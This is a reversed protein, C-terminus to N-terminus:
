KVFQVGLRITPQTGIMWFESVFQTRPIRPHRLILQPEGAAARPGPRFRMFGESSLKWGGLLSAERSVWSLYWERYHTPGRIRWLSGAVVSKVIKATKHPFGPIKVLNVRPGVQIFSGGAITGGSELTFMAGGSKAHAFNLSHNTFFQGKREGAEVFGFGSLTFGKPLAHSHSYWPSVMLGADIGSTQPYVELGYGFTHSGGKRQNQKTESKGSKSPQAKVLPVLPGVGVFAMAISALQAVFHIASKLQEKRRIDGPYFALGLPWFISAPLLRWIEPWVLLDRVMLRVVFVLFMVPVSWLYGLVFKKLADTEISSVDFRHESYSNEPRAAIMVDNGFKQLFNFNVMSTPSGMTLSGLRSKMEEKASFDDSDTEVLRFLADELMRKRNLYEWYSGPTNPLVVKEPKGWKEERDRVWVYETRVKEMSYNPSMQIRAATDLANGRRVEKLWPIFATILLLFLPIYWKRM